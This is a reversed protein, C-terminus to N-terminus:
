NEAPREATARLTEGDRGAAPVNSDAGARFPRLGEAGTNAWQFLAIKDELEMEEALMHTDDCQEATAVMAPEVLVAQAVADFIGAVRPLDAIDVDVPGEAMKMMDKTLTEPIKGLVALDILKVKRVKVHLGSPLDLEERQAARYEALNMRKSRISQKLSTLMENM